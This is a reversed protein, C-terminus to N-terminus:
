GLRLSFHRLDFFAERHFVLSVFVRGDNLDRERLTFFDLNKFLPLVVGTQDLLAILYEVNRFLVQALRVEVTAATQFFNGASSRRKLRRLDNYFRSSDKLPAAIQLLVRMYHRGLIKGAM